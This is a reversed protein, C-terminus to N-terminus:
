AFERIMVTESEIKSSNIDYAIIPFKRGFAVALPLGVYGLGVLAIKAQKSFIQEATVM